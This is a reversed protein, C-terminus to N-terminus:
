GFHLLYYFDILILDGTAQIYLSKSLIGRACCHNPVIIPLALQPIPPPNDSRLGEIIHKVPLIYDDETMKFPCSKGVLYISTTVASLAKAVTLVKIQVGKSYYGQRFRAAFATVFITIDLQDCGQLFPDINWTAAFYQWAKWYKGQDKTAQPTVGAYIIQCDSVVDSTADM